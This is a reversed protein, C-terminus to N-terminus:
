KSENRTAWIFGSEKKHRTFREIRYGQTSLFKNLSDGNRKSSDLNHYELRINSLRRFDESTCGELIEYEAGECNLKLLDITEIGHSDCIKRLTTCEVSQRAKSGEDIVLTNLPSEDLLMDRQGAHSAVAYQFTQIQGELSNISVNQNLLTFNKQEPEFSYIRANPCSLAAYVSFSGMNAGIDVITNFNDLVGYERRIFVVAITGALTGTGDILRKGSRFKYVAPQKRRLVYNSIYLPWNSLSFFIRPLYFPFTLSHQSIM